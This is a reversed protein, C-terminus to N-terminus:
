DDWRGYNPIKIYDDSYVGKDATTHCVACKALGGVDKQNILKKDIKRHKEIIYPIESISKYTTTRDLSATIKASRKYQLANESANKTLYNLISEKDMKDLSADTGFHNELNNMMYIWSKSPLLGAQYGMHCSACEKKYLQNDVPAVGRKSSGFFSDGFCVGVLSVLVIMKKM